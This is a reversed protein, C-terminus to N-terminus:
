NKSPSLVVGKAIGKSQLRRQAAIAERKNRFPGVVVRSQIQAPLGMTKVNSRLKEAKDIANFVGLQVFYGNSHGASPPPWNEPSFGSRALPVSLREDLRGESAPVPESDASKEPEAARRQASDAPRATIGSVAANSEGRREDRRVADVARDVLDDVSPAITNNASSDASHDISVQQTSELKESLLSDVVEAGTDSPATPAVATQPTGPIKDGDSVRNEGFWLLLILVLAAGGVAIWGRLVLAIQRQEVPDVIKRGM